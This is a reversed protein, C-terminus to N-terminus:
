FNNDVDVERMTARENDGDKQRVFANGLVLELDVVLGMDKKQRM